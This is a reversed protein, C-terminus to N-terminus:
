CKGHRLSVIAVKTALVERTGGAEFPVSTDMSSFLGVLTGGAVITCGLFHTNLTVELCPM